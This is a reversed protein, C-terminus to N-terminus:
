SAVVLDWAKQRMAQGPGTFWTTFLRNDLSDTVRTHDFYETAANYGAWATGAIGKIDQGMGEEFLRKVEAAAALKTVHQEGKVIGDEDRNFTFLDAVFADLDAQKWAKAAIQDVQEMFSVMYRETIGLATRADVVKGKISPTHRASFKLTTDKNLAARLTNDCVVRIPTIRMSIPETGDHANSLLIYSKIEDVGKVSYSQGSIQALIFTRRGNGLSGATEYKAEGTKTVSDFFGFAERNQFVTYLRGHTMNNFVEGTDVRRTWFQNDVKQFHGRGKNYGAPILEVEWDLNAAQIAEEATALEPLEVGLGHWPKKGVYMMEDNPGIGHAM